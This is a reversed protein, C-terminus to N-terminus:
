DQIQLSYLAQVTNRKVTGLASGQLKKNNHRSRFQDDQNNYLTANNDFYPYNGAAQYGNLFLLTSTSSQQAHTVEARKWGFSGASISGSSGATKPTLNIAGGISSSLLRAPPVTRWVQISSFAHLPLEALNITSVGDPNLPIGDLYIEVQRSSSGRISVTSTDGLGGFSRILSGTSSRLVDGLDMNQHFRDDLTLSLEAASESREEEVIIEAQEAYACLYTFSILFLM